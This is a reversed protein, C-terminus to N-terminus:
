TEHAFVYFKSSQKEENFTVYARKITNTISGMFIDINQAYM